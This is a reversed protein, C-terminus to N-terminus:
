VEEYCHKSDLRIAVVVHLITVVLPKTIMVSFHTISPKRINTADKKIDKSVEYM